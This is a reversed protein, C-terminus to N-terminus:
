RRSGQRRHHELEVGRAQRDAQHGELAFPEVLRFQAVQCLELHAILDGPDGAGAHGLGETAAVALYHHVGIRVLQLGALQAGHVDHAGDVCRVQDEGRSVDLDAREVVVDVGVALQVGELLDVVQRDLHDAFGRHADGIDACGLVGM